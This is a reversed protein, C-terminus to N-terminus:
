TKFILTHPVILREPEYSLKAQRLGKIGLDQERNVYVCKNQLFKATEQNIVQAAGKFSLDSKEFQINYTDHNLRSFVCFAVMRDNVWLGVGEFGLSDFNDFAREIAKFEDELDQSAKERIEIIHRAFDRAIPLDDIKLPRVSYDPNRRKFQSILNRKKHLKVGNLEALSDVRYIYEAHDREERITYFREIDPYADVYERPLISIDPEFGMCILHHSLDKLDDPSFAEGLPMFGCNNVGEYIVLRGRFIFWSDDYIEQWCFLNSFNFECSEPHFRDIYSRILSQDELKFRCPISFTILQGPDCEVKDCRAKM